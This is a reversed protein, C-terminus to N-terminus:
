GTLAGKVHGFLVSEILTPVIASCDAPVFLKARRPGLDHISRAVLEKGTGSEGVILVPYSHQSIKGILAYLEQMKVSTGVLGGPEGFRVRRRVAPESAVALTLRDSLADSKNGPSREDREM